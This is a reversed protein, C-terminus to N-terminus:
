NEDWVTRGNQVENKKKKPDLNQTHPLVDWDPKNWKVYHNGNGNIDDCFSLIENRQYSLLIGNHTHVLNEKGMWRVISMKTSEMDQDSLNTHLYDSSFFFSKLLFFLIPIM